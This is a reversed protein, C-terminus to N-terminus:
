CEARNLWPGTTREAGKLRRARRVVTMRTHWFEGLDFGDAAGQDVLDDTLADAVSRTPSKGPTRPPSRTSSTRARISPRWTAATRRRALYRM